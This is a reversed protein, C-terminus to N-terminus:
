LEALCFLHLCARHYKPFFISAFNAALGIVVGSVYLFFTRELFRVNDECRLCYRVVCFSCSCLNRILDSQLDNLRHQLKSYFALRNNGFRITM